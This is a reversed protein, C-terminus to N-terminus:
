EFHFIANVLCRIQHTFSKYLLQLPFIFQFSFRDQNSSKTTQRSSVFLSVSGLYGGQGGFLSRQQSFWHFYLSHHNKPPSTTRLALFARKMKFYHKEMLLIDWAKLSFDRSCIVPASLLNWICNKITVSPMRSHCNMQTSPLSMSM